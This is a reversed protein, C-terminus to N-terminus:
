AQDDNQPEVQETSREHLITKLRAINRRADKIDSPREVSSVAHNLRLRLLTEQEDTIRAEIEETTLERIDKAKM